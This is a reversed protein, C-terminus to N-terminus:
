KISENCKKIYSMTEVDDCIKLICLVFLKLIIWYNSMHIKEDEPANMQSGHLYMNRLDTGNNFTAKNLYFDFYEYEKKAFLSSKFIVLNDAEMIKLEERLEKGLHWYSIVDNDNLQMLLRIRIVNNFKIEHNDLRIYRHEVLWAFIPKTYEGFDTDYITENKLLEYFTDYSKKIREVYTIHSQTSFLHHCAVRFEDGIGYVYKENVSSKCDSFKMHSSSIQFLEQDVYGDEVYLNYQKLIGDMESLMTRCKELYSTNSSPVNMRFGEIMFENRLYKEFFWKYINELQKGNNELQHYYGSMQIDALTNLIRTSYGPEYAYKSRMFLSKEFIGKYVDKEVLTIRWQMDVYGFWYIFNNLLTPEDLNDKIWSSDYKCVIKHPNMDFESDNEKLNGFMVNIETKFGGGESFLKEQEKEVRKRTQLRLRDGIVLTDPKDQISVIIQLYNLNAEEWEVYKEIIEKKDDIKLEKPFYLHEKKFEHYVEYEDLLWEAVKESALLEKRLEEGYADVLSKEFLINRIAYKNGEIADKICAFEIKEFLKYSQFVEWFLKNYDHILGKYVSCFEDECLTNFYKGVIGKFKKVIRKYEHLETESWTSLYIQADMYKCVVFLEMVENIDLYENGEIYGGLIEDMRKLQIGLALDNIALWKIRERM